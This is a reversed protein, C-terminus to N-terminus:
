IIMKFYNLIIYLIFIILTSLHITFHFTTMFLKLLNSKKHKKTYINLSLSLTLSFYFIYTYCIDHSPYPFFNFNIALIIFLPLLLFSIFRWLSIITFVLRLSIVIWFLYRYVTESLFEHLASRAVTGIVHWTHVRGKSLESRLSFSEWGWLNVGCLLLKHVENVLGLLVLWCWVGLVAFSCPWISEFCLMFTWSILVLVEVV